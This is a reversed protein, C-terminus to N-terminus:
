PNVWNQLQGRQYARINEAAIRLLRIRAAHAAWAIHPTIVCNRAQLLPNSAAPPELSLVDLGAGAIRGSNLADALQHENVLGGRATNILLAAPKMQAIRDSNIIEKTEPTLPCHSGRAAHFPM